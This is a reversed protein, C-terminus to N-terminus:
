TNFLHISNTAVSHQNVSTLPQIIPHNSDHQTPQATVTATPSVLYAIKM